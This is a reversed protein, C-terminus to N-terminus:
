ASQKLTKRREELFEVGQKLTKLARKANRKALKSPKEDKDKRKEKLLIKKAVSLESETENLIQRSRKV